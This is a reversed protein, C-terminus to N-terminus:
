GQAAVGLGGRVRPCEAKSCFELSPINEFSKVALSEPNFM